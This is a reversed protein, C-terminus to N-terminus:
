AAGLACSAGGARRGEVANGGRCSVVAALLAMAGGLGGALAMVGGVGGSVVALGLFCGAASFLLEIGGGVSSNIISGNIGVRLLRICVIALAMEAIGVGATGGSKVVGSM